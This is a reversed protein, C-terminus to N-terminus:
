RKPQSFVKGKYYYFMPRFNNHKAACDYVVDNLNKSNKENVQYYDNVCNIMYKEMTEDSSEALSFGTLSFFILSIKILKKM